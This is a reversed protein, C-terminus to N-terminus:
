TLETGRVWVDFTLYMRPVTDPIPSPGSTQEVRIIPDGDPLSRILAAVTRALDSVAQGTSGAKFVNVGLRASERIPDLTPGGDRRVWVGDGGIYDHGVRLGAYGYSPLLARLRGTVELEVDPFIIPTAM